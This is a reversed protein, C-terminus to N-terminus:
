LNEAIEYLDGVIPCDAVKLIPANEDLTVACIRHADRIGALFQLSGSIGLTILLKPSVTQGSLGIQNNRNFWGRDVLARSCMLSANFREAINRFIEIDSKERVGAGLAIIIQSNSTNNLSVKETWQAFIDTALNNKIETEVKTIKTVTNSPIFDPTGFRLTAIQPRTTPTIIQAMINGGFAPRTQLLLGKSDFSLQTCDATVGTKLRAALMSSIARGEPTASALFVDPKMQKICGEIVAIHLEPVFSKFVENQYVFVETLGCNNLQEQLELTLEDCVLIGYINRKDQVGLSCATEIVNISVPHIANEITQILVLIPASKPNKNNM